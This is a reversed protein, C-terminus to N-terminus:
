APTLVADFRYHAAYFAEPMTRIEVTFGLRQALARMEDPSWWVGIPSDAIDEIGAEYRDGFFDHLKRKDPLNGLFLRRINPVCQRLAALLRMSDERPLYQWSGYCVAKSFREPEPCTEVFHVADDLLFTEQKRRAFHERAVGILFESFDVGVGGKCRAFFRATLAGNGCCLDLLWDEAQLELGDCVAHVIMDIQETPLPKGNVTRKVQGWFDDPECTKPHEKYFSFDGTM